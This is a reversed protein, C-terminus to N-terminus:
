FTSYRFYFGNDNRLQVANYGTAWLVRRNLLYTAEIFDEYTLPPEELQGRFDRNYYQIIIDGIIFFITQTNLSLAVIVDLQNHQFITISLM